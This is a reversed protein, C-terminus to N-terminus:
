KDWASRYPILISRDNPRDPPQMFVRQRGKWKYRFPADVKCILELRNAYMSDDGTRGDMPHYLTKKIDPYIDTQIRELGMIKAKSYIGHLETRVIRRLQWEEGDFFDGLGREVYELGTEYPLNQAVIDAMGNAIKSRLTDSYAAVSEQFQNILLNSADSAILTADLNMPLLSGEFAEAFANTEKVLNQVGKDAIADASKALKDPLESNLAQLAGEVQLLAVRAQQATYSQGPSVRFHSNEIHARTLNALKKRLQIRVRNYVQILRAAETEELELVERVHNELLDMADVDEFFSM